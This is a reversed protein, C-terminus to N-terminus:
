PVSSFPCCLCPLLSHLVDHFCAKQVMPEVTFGCLSSAAHVVGKPTQVLHPGLASLLLPCVGGNKIQFWYEILLWKCIFVCNEEISDQQPFQSGKGGIILYYKIYVTNLPVYIYIYSFYYKLLIFIRLSSHFYFQLSGLVFLLFFILVSILLVSLLFLFSPWCSRENPGSAEGFAQHPTSDSILVRHLFFVSEYVHKEKRWKHFVHNTFRVGVCTCVFAHVCTSLGVEIHTRTSHVPPRVTM